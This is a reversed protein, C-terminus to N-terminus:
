DDDENTDRILIDICGLEDLEKSDYLEAPTVEANNPIIQRNLTREVNDLVFDTCYAENHKDQQPPTWDYWSFFAKRIPYGTGLRNHEIYNINSSRMLDSIQM